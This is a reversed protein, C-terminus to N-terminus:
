RGTSLGSMMAGLSNMERAHSYDGRAKKVFEIAKTLIKEEFDDDPSELRGELEEILVNYQEPVVVGETGVLKRHEDVILGINDSLSPDNILEVMAKWERAKRKAKKDKRTDREVQMNALKKTRRITKAQNNNVKVLKKGSNAITSSPLVTFNTNKRPFVRKRNRITLHTSGRIPTGVTKRYTKRTFPRTSHSANYIGM